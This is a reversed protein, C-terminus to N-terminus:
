NSHRVRTRVRVRARVRVNARVRVRVRVRVGVRVLFNTCGCARVHTSLIKKCLLECIYIPPKLM